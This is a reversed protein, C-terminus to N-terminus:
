KDQLGSQCLLLLMSTQNCVVYQPDITTIKSLISDSPSVRSWTTTLIFEYHKEKDKMVSIRNSVGVINM